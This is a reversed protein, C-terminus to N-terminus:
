DNLKGKAIEMASKYREADMQYNMDFSTKEPFQEIMVTSSPFAFSIGINNALTLISMHLTHKSHQLSNWDLQVFYVNVMIDLSSAGFGIFEVNFKDNLSNEHKTILERIGGIFAELLEPPTDYRVGIQTTYRRFRRMGKNNIILEALQNNPIQFVSTDAARIRTSRFGVEEVSGVVSGAEIWDGIQFPKDLFIMLSGLLNKVTDQASLALALGGISAGALVSTPNVGAITLFRLLAAIIVIGKLLNNIVPVLQDDLKSTTRSAYEKYTNVGIQISIMFVHVWFVVYAFEFGTFLFNAIDITLQLSPLFNEIGFVILINSLPRALKVFGQHTDENTYKIFHKEIRNLFWLVIKRLIWSLTTSLVFLAILGVVQWLELGLFPRHGIEPMNKQIWDTGYPFVDKYIDDIKKVSEESIFWQTQGRKKELYIQPMRNPFLIYRHVRKISTTDIVYNPDNPVNYINVKLGNAVFIKNLKEAAAAADKGYIGKLTKGAAIFNPVDAQANNVFTYITSQPNKLDEKIEDKSQTQAQAQTFSFLLLLILSYRKFM